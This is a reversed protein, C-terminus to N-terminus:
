RKPNLFDDGNKHIQIREYKVQLMYEDKKGGM